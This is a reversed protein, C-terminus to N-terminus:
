AVKTLDVSKGEVSLQASILSRGPEGLPLGALQALIRIFAVTFPRVRDPLLFLWKRDINLWFRLHGDLEEQAKAYKEEDWAGPNRESLYVERLTRVMSAMAEAHKHYEYVADVDEPLTFDATFDDGANVVFQASNRARNWVGQDVTVIAERLDGPLPPQFKPFYKEIREKRAGDIVSEAFKAAKGVIPLLEDVALLFVEKDGRSQNGNSDIGLLAEIQGADLRFGTELKGTFESGPSGDVVSRYFEMASDTAGRRLLGAKELDRFFGGVDKPDVEEDNQSLTLSLQLQNTQSATALSYVNVFSLCRGEQWDNRCQEIATRSTVRIDGNSNQVYELDTDLTRTGKFDLGFLSISYGSKRDLNRYDALEGSILEIPGDDPQERLLRFAEELSGTMVKRYLTKAQEDVRRFRILLDASTSSKREEEAHIKAELKTIVAQELATRLKQLQAQYKTLEERVPELVADIRKQTGTISKQVEHGLDGLLGDLAEFDSKKRVANEVGKRLRNLESKIAGAAEKQILQSLEERQAVPIELGEMVSKSVKAAAGDVDDPWRATSTEIEGLIREALLRSASNEPDFGILAKLIQGNPSEDFRKGINKDQALRQDADGPLVEQLRELLDALRGLRPRLLDRLKQYLPTFDLDLGLERSIGLARFKDRYLSVVLGQDQYVFYRYEGGRRVRFGLKTSITSIVGTALAVANSLEIEGGLSLTGGVVMHIGALKPANSRRDVNRRSLDHIADLDFPSSLRGINQVLARAFLTKPANYFYWNLRAAAEAGASGAVSGWQIPAKAETGASLTTHMGIRVQPKAGDRPYADPLSRPIAEFALHLDAEGSLVVQLQELGKPPRKKGQDLLPWELLRKPLTSTGSSLAYLPYGLSHYSDPIVELLGDRLKRWERAIKEVDLDHGQLISRVRDADAGDFTLADLAQFVDDLDTDLADSDLKTDLVAIASLLALDDGFDLAHEGNRTLWSMAEM